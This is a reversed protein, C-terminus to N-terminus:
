GPSRVALVRHTEIAPVTLVQDELAVQLGLGTAVLEGPQVTLPQLDAEGRRWDVALGVGPQQGKEGVGKGHALALDAQFAALLAPLLTDADLLRPLQWGHEFQGGSGGSRGDPRLSISALQCGRCARCLARWGLADAGALRQRASGRRYCCLRALWLFALILM